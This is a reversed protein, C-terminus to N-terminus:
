LGAKNKFETIIQAVQARTTFSSPFLEGNDGGLLKNGVAWQLPYVDYYPVNDTDIFDDLEVANGQLVGKYKAYNYLVGALDQRSVAKDPSFINVDDGSIINNNAAWLVADAYYADSAVDKFARGNVEPCGEMCYLIEVIMARSVYRNPCFNGEDNTEMIGESMATLVPQTFWTEPEDAMDEPIEPDLKERLEDPLRYLTLMCAGNFFGPYYNYSVYENNHEVTGAMCGDSIWMGNEDWDHIIIYHTMFGNHAWVIDGSRANNATLWSAMDSVAGSSNVAAPQIDYTDQGFVNMWVLNVFACCGWAKAMGDKIYPTPHRGGLSSVYNEIAETVPDINEEPTEAEEEEEEAEDLTVEATETEPLDSDEAFAPFLLVSLMAAILLLVILGHGFFLSSTKKQFILNFGGHNNRDKIM